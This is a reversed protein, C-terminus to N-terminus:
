VLGLKSTAADPARKRQVTEFFGEFKSHTAKLIDPEIGSIAGVIDDIETKPVLSALTDSAAPDNERRLRKLEDNVLYVIGAQTPGGCDTREAKVKEVVYVTAVLNAYFTSGEPPCFDKLLFM